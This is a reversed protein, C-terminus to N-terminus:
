STNILLDTSDGVVILRWRADRMRFALVRKKSLPVESPVTLGSRVFVEEAREIVPNIKETVEQLDRAIKKVDHAPAATM